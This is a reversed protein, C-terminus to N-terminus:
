RPHQKNDKSTDHFFINHLWYVVSPGGDDVQGGPPRGSIYPFAACTVFLNFKKTSVNPYVNVM